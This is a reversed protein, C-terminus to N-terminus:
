QPNDSNKNKKRTKVQLPFVIQSLKIGSWLRKVQRPSLDGKRDTDVINGKLNPDEESDRRQKILNEVAENEVQPDGQSQVIYKGEIHMSDLNDDVNVENNKNANGVDIIHTKDQIQENRTGEEAGKDTINDEIDQGIHTDKLAEKNNQNKLKERM